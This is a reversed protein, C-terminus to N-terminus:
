RRLIQLVVGQGLDIRVEIEGGAGGRVDNVPTATKNAAVDKLPGIDVFKAPMKITGDMVASDLKRAGLRRRWAYFTGETIEESRCFEAISQRSAAQRAVRDRWEQERQAAVSGQKSM